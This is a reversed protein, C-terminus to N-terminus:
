IGEKDVYIITNSTLENNTTRIFYNRCAKDSHLFQRIAEIKDKPLIGQVTVKYKDQWDEVEFDIRVEDLFDEVRQLNQDEIM